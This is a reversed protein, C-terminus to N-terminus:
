EPRHTIRCRQFNKMFSNAIVKALAWQKSPVCLTTYKRRGEPNEKVLIRLDSTITSEVKQMSLHVQKAIVHDDSM